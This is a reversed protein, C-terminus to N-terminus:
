SLVQEVCVAIDVDFYEGVQDDELVHKGEKQCVTSVSPDKGRADLVHEGNKCTNFDRDAAQTYWHIDEAFPISREEVLM